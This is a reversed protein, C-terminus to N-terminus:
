RRTMIRGAFGPPLHEPRLRERGITGRMKEIFLILDLEEDTPDGLVFAHIVDPAAGALANNRVFGDPLALKFGHAEDVVVENGRLAVLSGSFATILFVIWRM